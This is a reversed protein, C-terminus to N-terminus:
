GENDIASTIYEFDGAKKELLVVNSNVVRSGANETDSEARTKKTSVRSESQKKVGIGDVFIFVTDVDYIDVEKNIEPLELTENELVSLADSQVQKSVELAKEVVTNQISQDSLQKEGSTREVLVEEYSLRNAYIAGFEKLGSRFYGDEFQNTLGLYTHSTQDCNDEM